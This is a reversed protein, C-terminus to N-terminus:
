PLQRAKPAEHNEAINGNRPLPQTVIVAAVSLLAHVLFRLIGEKFSIYILPNISFDDDLVSILDKISINVKVFILQVDIGYLLMLLVSKLHSEFRHLADHAM